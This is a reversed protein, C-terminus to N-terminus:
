GNGASQNLVAEDTSNATTVSDKTFVALGNDDKKRNFLSQFSYMKKKVVFALIIVSLPVLVSIVAILSGSNVAGLGSLANQAMLIFVLAYSAMYKNKLGYIIAGHLLIAVVVMIATEAPSLSLSVIGGLVSITIVVAYAVILINNATNYKKADDPDPFTSLFAAVKKRDAGGETAKTFVKQKGYGEKKLKKVEKMKM